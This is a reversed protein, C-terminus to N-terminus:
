QATFAYYLWLYVYGLQENINKYQVVFSAFTYDSLQFLFINYFLSSAKSCFNLKESLVESNKRRRMSRCEM